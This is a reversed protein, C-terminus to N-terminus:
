SIFWCHLTTMVVTAIAIVGTLMHKKSLSSRLCCSCIGLVRIAYVAPMTCFATRSCHLRRAAPKLMWQTFSSPTTIVRYLELRLILLRWTVTPWVEYLSRKVQFTSYNDPLTIYHFETIIPVPLVSCDYLLLRWKLAHKQRKAHAYNTSM